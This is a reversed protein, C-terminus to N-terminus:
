HIKKTLMELAIEISHSKSPNESLFELFSLLMSFSFYANDTNRCFAEDHALLYHKGWGSRLVEPGVTYDQGLAM